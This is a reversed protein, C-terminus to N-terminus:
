GSGAPREQALLKAVLRLLRPRPAQNRLIGQRARALSLHESSDASSCIEVVIPVPESLIPCRRDFLYCSGHPFLSWNVTKRTDTLAAGYRRNEDSLVGSVEPRPELPSQQDADARQSRRSMALQVLVSCITHQREMQDAVVVRYVNSVHNPSSRPENSSTGPNIHEASPM